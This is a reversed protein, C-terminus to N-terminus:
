RYLVKLFLFFFHIFVSTLLKEKFTTSKYTHTIHFFFFIWTEKQSLFFMFSFINETDTLFFLLANMEKETIFVFSLRMHSLYLCFQGPSHSMEVTLVHTEIMCRTSESNRRTENAIQM